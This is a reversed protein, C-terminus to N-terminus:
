HYSLSVHLDEWLPVPDSPLNPACLICNCLSYHENCGQGLNPLLFLACFVYFIGMDLPCACLVICFSVLRGFLGVVGGSWADVPSM